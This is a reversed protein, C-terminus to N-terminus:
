ETLLDGFGASGERSPEIAGAFPGPPQHSLLESRLLLRGEGVRKNEFYPVPEFRRELDFSGFGNFNLIGFRGGGDGRDVGGARGRLLRDPEEDAQSDGDEPGIRDIALNHGTSSAASEGKPQPKSPTRRTRPAQHRAPKM